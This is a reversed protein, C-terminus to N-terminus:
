AGPRRKPASAKKRKEEPYDSPKVASQNRIANATRSNQSANGGEPLDANELDKRTM